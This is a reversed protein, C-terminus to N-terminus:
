SGIYKYRFDLGSGKKFLEVHLILETIKGDVWIVCELGWVGFDNMEYLDVYPRSGIKGSFAVDELVLSVISNTLFYESLCECIEDFIPKTIGFKDRLNEKDMVNIYNVFESVLAYAEGNFKKDM